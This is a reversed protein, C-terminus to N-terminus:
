ANRNRTSRTVSTYIPVFESQIYKHKMILLMRVDTQTAEAKGTGEFFQPHPHFNLRHESAVRGTTSGILAFIMAGQFTISHM